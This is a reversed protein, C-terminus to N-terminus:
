FTGIDMQLDISRIRFSTNAYHRIHWARRYFTGCAKLIPRRKSLDVERFNTWSELKYDDDNVRVFIKSGPTQDSNFRMMSLHKKRDINFTTNPTYIDVPFVVGDDSHYEYDGEVLYLKGNTEHQVLHLHDETFTRGVVKWYTGDPDTWKYWLNQDIDYVLTHDEDALTLGYFRHGGHKLTWSHVNTFTAQDLLREIQPNSIPRVKLDSMMVIQPSSSRNSSIWFLDDDLEQVSDASVCGYPSKAGQVPALPSGPPPIAADYFVETTWEKLAVVYVLQKALAVGRDPEVRAVIMNMWDWVTPDDFGKTGWIQAEEDMVYLTGDLYAWGKCFATPFASQDLVTGDGAGQDVTVAQFTVGVTNSAAGVLTFDTTGVTNIQYWEGEVLSTANLAVTGTGAGMNTATFTGGVIDSELLATGSGTGVGTATFPLGITNSSAGILTFDTRTDVPLGFIPGKPIYLGLYHIVYRTGIVFSGAVVPTPDAPTAVAGSLSYDTTGVTLITYDSGTVFSGANIPVYEPMAWLTTGDTYYAKVGNGIVLYEPEGRVQVFRYVGNSTDVTGMAVGNKYFVGGFISYVDEFWNYLGMGEGSKESYETLGVRKQVWYEGSMPDKEAICNILKADKDLTEDRNGFMTVLPMKHPQNMPMSESAMATNPRARM